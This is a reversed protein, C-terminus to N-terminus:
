LEDHARRRRRRKKKKKKPAEAAAQTRTVRPPLAEGRARKLARAEIAAQTCLVIVTLM